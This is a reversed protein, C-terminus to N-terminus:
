LDNLFSKEDKRKRTNFSISYILPFSPRSIFYIYIFLAINVLQPPCQLRNSVAFGGSFKIFFRFGRSIRAARGRKTLFFAVYKVTAKQPRQAEDTVPAHHVNPAM